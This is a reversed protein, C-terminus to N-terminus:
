PSSFLASVILKCVEADVLIPRGTFSFNWLNALGKYLIGYYKYM